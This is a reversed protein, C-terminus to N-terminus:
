IKSLSNKKETLEKFASNRILSKIKQRYVNKPTKMIEHEDVEVGMFEFDNKLLQIWDGKLPELKQKDYIKRITEERDLSLLHHHYMVRNIRLIHRLM